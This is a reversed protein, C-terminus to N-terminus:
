RNTLLNEFSIEREKLYKILDDASLNRMLYEMTPNKIEEHKWGYRIGDKPFNKKTIKKAFDKYAFSIYCIKERFFTLGSYFYPVDAEYLEEFTKYHVDEMPVTEFVKTKGLITVHEWEGNINVMPYCEYVKLM